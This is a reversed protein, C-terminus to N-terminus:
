SAMKLVLVTNETKTLFNSWPAFFVVFSFNCIYHTHKKDVPCRKKSLKQVIKKLGFNLTNKTWFSKSLFQVGIKIKESISFPTKTWFLRYISFHTDLEQGAVPCVKRNKHPARTWFFFSSVFSSLLNTTWNTTWSLFCM